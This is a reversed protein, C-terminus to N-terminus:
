SNGKEQKGNWKLLVDDLTISHFYDELLHNAAVWIDRALCTKTNICFKDNCVCPVIEIQGEQAHIIDIIKIESPPRSLMFGGKNGKVVRVLGENKLPSMLQELYKWSIKQNMEIKKLSIPQEGYYKAMEIMARVSYRIRTSINM